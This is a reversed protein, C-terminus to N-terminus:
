GCIDRRDARRAKVLYPLLESDGELAYRLIQMMEAVFPSPDSVLSYNVWKGEKRDQIFGAENLLSLHKSVTSPALDLAATIECVCMPKIELMKVIALRNKDGLARFAKLQSKM